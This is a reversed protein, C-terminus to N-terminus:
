KEIAVDLKGKKNVEHYVIKKNKINKTLKNLWWEEGEIILHANQGNPLTKRAPLTDIRLWIYDTAYTNIDQIVQDIYVPEIHELVDNSFVATFNGKPKASFMAVAPDYGIFKTDSYQEKLHALIAGKGCGYDLCSEPLWYNMFSPFKGFSKVKGGFGNPRSKDTHLSKLQEIYTKSYM